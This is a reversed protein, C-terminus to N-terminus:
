QNTSAASRSSRKKHYHVGFSFRLHRGSLSSDDLQKSSDDQDSLRHDRQYRKAQHYKEVKGRKLM